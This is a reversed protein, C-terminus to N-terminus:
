EDVLEKAIAYFGNVYAEVSLQENVYLQRRSRAEYGNDARELADAVARRLTETSLPDVVHGLERNALLQRSAGAASAVVPLGAALAEVVTRPLGEGRSPLVLLDMAAYCDAVDQRYGLWHWRSSCPSALTFAQLGAAFADSGATMGGVLLVHLEPREAMMPELAAVLLDHGKRESISGVMGVVEATQPVGLCARMAARTEASRTFAAVEFGTNLTRFRSHYRRQEAPTFACILADAILVVRSSLRLAAAFLGKVRQDSRVYWLRPLGALMAGLGCFVMSRANNAYVLDIREARLWARVRLNFALLEGASLLKGPVGDRVVAGGFRRSRKGVPLVVVRHGAQRFAVSLPGEGTTVLTADLALASAARLGEFLTLLSQQAGYFSEHRVEFFAVKM